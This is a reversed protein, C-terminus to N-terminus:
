FYRAWMRRLEEENVAEILSVDLQPEHALKTMKELYAGEAKKRDDGLDTVETKRTQKNHIILFNTM